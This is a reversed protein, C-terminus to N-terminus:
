ARLPLVLSIVQEGRDNVKYVIRHAKVGGHRERVLEYIETMIRAAFLSKEESQPPTQPPRADDPM